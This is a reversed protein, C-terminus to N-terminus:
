GAARAAHEELISNHQSVPLPSQRM